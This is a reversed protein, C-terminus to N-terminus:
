RIGPGNVAEVFEEQLRFLEGHVANFHRDALLRGVFSLYSMLFRGDDKLHIVAADPAWLGLKLADLTLSQLEPLMSGISDPWDSLSRGAANRMRRNFDLMKAGLTMLQQEAAATRGVEVKHLMSGVIVGAFFTLTPWFYPLETISAATSLVLQVGKTPDDLYGNREAWRKIMEASLSGAGILGAIWLVFTKLKGM